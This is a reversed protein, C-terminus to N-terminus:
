QSELALVLVANAEVLNEYATNLGRPLKALGNKRLFYSLGRESDSGVFTLEVLPNGGNFLLGTVRWVVGPFKRYEVYDDKSFIM